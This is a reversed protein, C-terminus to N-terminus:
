ENKKLRSELVGDHGCNQANIKIALFVLFLIFFLKNM